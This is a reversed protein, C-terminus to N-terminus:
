DNLITGNVIIPDTILEGNLYLKKSHHTPNSEYNFFEIDCWADLDTINVTGIHCNLFASGSVEQVSPPITITSLRTCHAFSCGGIYTVGNPITVNTLSCCDEFASGGIRKLGEPMTVTSLNKCRFFARYQIWKTNANIVCTTIETSTAKLLVLYPNTENGIYVANDYVNYNLNPCNDFVASGLSTVSSPISVNTLNTCYSFANSGIRSVSAPIEISTLSSCGSFAQDGIITVSNPITVETLSSCMAFMLDSISTISDPLTIRTLGQCDTFAQEGIHTISNPITVNVLNSCAYFAGDGIEKVPLNNYSSPIVLDTIANSNKGSVIYYTGDDSLTYKLDTIPDGDCILTYNYDCDWREGKDIAYWQPTTGKYVIRELSACGAFAYDGISTVSMPISVNRLNLCETFAGNGISTVGSPIIITDLLGYCGVFAHDGISTLGNGFTIKSLSACEAFARAGISTVSNPITITWLDLDGNFVNKGIAVVPFNDITAPISVNGGPGYYDTITAEGESVSYNWTRAFGCVSCTKSSDGYNHGTAATECDRYSEGCDCNHVTYGKEACTPPTVVSTWNHVHEAPKSGSHNGPNTAETLTTGLAPGNPTDTSVCATLLLMILLVACAIIAIKQLSTNKDM